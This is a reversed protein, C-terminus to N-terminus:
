GALCIRRPPQGHPDRGDSRAPRCNSALISPGGLAYPKAARHRRRLRRGRAGAPHRRRRGVAGPRVRLLRRLPRRRRLRPRAGRRGLPARRRHAAMVAALKAPYDAHDGKGIHPIGTGVLARAPDKRGSVRLRRSRAAPTDVFAGNGKEAWFLEDSIPQYIVGAIIEGDRELASRSPSTRCATCSTPRATSRTSSGATAATARSRAAKRASSATTRGPRRAARRAARARGQHRRPQRFRGPGKRLGAPARGRRLRAEPEQGRRLRRPDDRHHHGLAAGALPARAPGLARPGAGDPRPRRPRRPSRRVLPRQPPSRHSPGRSRM